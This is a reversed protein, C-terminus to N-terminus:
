GSVYNKELLSALGSGVLSGSYVAEELTNADTGFELLLSCPTVDMNYRRHCFFIPRMLTESVSFMENQLALAFSLNKRWEPFGTVGSGECGTIIMVQAAKKGNVVATPKCKTGDDYHIADRHVDLTIVVSPNEKLLKRLTVESRDYAGNYSKDYIQKDHIVGYGAEELRAAIEDGVRVVTKSVDESRSVYDDSYWGKDLLEYGETTHTHYIIVYPKEKTIKGYEPKQTELLKYDLKEDTRNSFTANGITVTAANAGLTEETIEGTVTYGSYLKEAKEMLKKVDDPTQTDAQFSKKEFTSFATAAGSTGSGYHMMESICTNESVVESKECFASLFEAGSDGLADTNLLAGAVLAASLAVCLAGGANFRKKKM